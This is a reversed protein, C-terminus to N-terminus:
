PWFHARIGTERLQRFYILVDPRELRIGEREFPISTGWGCGNGPGGVSMMVECRFHLEFFFEDVLANDEANRLLSAAIPMETLPWDIDLKFAVFDREHSLQKLMGLPSDIARRSSNSSVPVNYFHWHAKWKEPVRKWYEEPHLLTKEWGYVDNFSIGMQAYACTFWWLSSDFTSTGADLFYHQPRPSAKARMKSRRSGVRARALNKGSQILVYDVNSRDIVPGSRVRKCTNMGFPHRAHITLPEIWETWEDNKAAKNCTRKVTFKSLYYNDADPNSAVGHEEGHFNMHTKVRKLWKKSHGIIDESLITKVLENSRAEWETINQLQWALDLQAREYPSPTYKRTIKCVLDRDSEKEVLELEPDDLGVGRSKSDDVASCCIPKGNPLACDLRVNRQQLPIPFIQGFPSRCKQGDTIAWNIIIMVLLLFSSNRCKLYGRESTIEHMNVGFMNLFGSLNRHTRLAVRLPNTFKSISSLNFILYM